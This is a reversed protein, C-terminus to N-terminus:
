NRRIMTLKQSGAAPRKSFLAEQVPPNLEWQSLRIDWTPNNPLDTFTMLMRRPLRDKAGVWLDVTMGPQILQLRDCATWGVRERGLARGATVHLLLQGLPDNSLLEALPPRFGFRDDIQDSFQEISGAKVTELAHQHMDPNMMCFTRGDYSIERTERGRQIAHFKNPRQVTVDLSAKEIGLGLGLSADMTHKAQVRLTRAGGLKDAMSKALTMAPPDIQARVPHSALSVAAALLMILSRPSVLLSRSKMAICRHPTSQRSLSHAPGPQGSFPTAPMLPSSCHLLPEVNAFGTPQRSRRYTRAIVAVWYGSSKTGLWGFISKACGFSASTKLAWSLGSNEGPVL